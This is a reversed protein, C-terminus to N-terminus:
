QFNQLNAQVASKWDLRKREVQSILLPIEQEMSAFSAPVIPTGNELESLVYYIVIRNIIYKTQEDKPLTNYLLEGEISLQRPIVTQKYRNPVRTLTTTIEYEEAPVLAPGTETDARSNTTMQTSYMYFSMGFVFVLVAMLSAIQPLRQVHFLGQRPKEEDIRLGPISSERTDVPIPTYRQEPQRQLDPGQNIPDM